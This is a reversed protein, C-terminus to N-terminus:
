CLAFNKVAVPSAHVTPKPLMCTINYIILNSFNYPGLGNKGIEPMATVPNGVTRLLLTRLLLSSINM